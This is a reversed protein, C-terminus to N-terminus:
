GYCGHGHSTGIFQNHHHENEKVEIFIHDPWVKSSFLHFRGGATTQNFRVSYISAHEPTWLSNMIFYPNVLRYSKNEWNEECFTRNEYTITTVFLGYPLSAGLAVLWICCILIICTSMQMRPKFPYLIVFFRDIAISTLTLTSVYVSTSQSYPLM